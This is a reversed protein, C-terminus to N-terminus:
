ATFICWATTYVLIRFKKIYLPIKFNSSKFSPPNVNHYASASPYLEEFYFFFDLFIIFGTIKVWTILSKKKRKKKGM